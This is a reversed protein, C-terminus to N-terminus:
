FNSQPQVETWSKIQWVKYYLRLGVKLEYSDTLANKETIWITKKAMSNYKEVGRGYINFSSYGVLSYMRKIKKM